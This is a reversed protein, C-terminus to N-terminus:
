RGLGISVGLDVSTVNDTFGTPITLSPTLTLRPGLTIGAGLSFVWGTEHATSNTGVFPFDHVTASVRAYSASAFPILGWHPRRVLVGGIGVGGGVTWGDSNLRSGGFDGDPGTEWSATVVPCLGIHDFRLEYGLGAGFEISHANGRQAAFDVNQSMNVGAFASAFASRGATLEAGASWADKARSADATVIVPREHLSPLGACVQARGCVPVALLIFAPLSVLSVVHGRFIRM